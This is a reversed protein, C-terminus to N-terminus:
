KQNYPTCSYGSNGVYYISTNQNYPTCSNGTSGVYYLSANKISVM